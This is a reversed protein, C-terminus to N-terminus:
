FVGISSLDNILSHRVVNRTIHFKYLSKNVFLIIVKSLLELFPSQKGVCTIPRDDILSPLQNQRQRALM